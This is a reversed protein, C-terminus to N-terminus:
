FGCILLVRSIQSNQAQSIGSLINIELEMWKRAFLTIKNKKISSYYKTM